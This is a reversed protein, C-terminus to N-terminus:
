MKLIKFNAEKEGFKLKFFYTGNSFGSIDVNSKFENPKSEFLLQGTITFIEIESIKTKSTILVWNTAPNPAYSFDILSDFADIGLVTSCSVTAEYGANVVGSDSYFKLTLSGDTATSEIPAPIANGTFGLATGTLNPFTDNPGNYINLYDYDIELDFATFTIKAKANPNTPIITRIILEDDRYNGTAGGSDTLPIGSCFDGSTVFILSSTAGILGGTCTNRFVAKYYTNPTLGNKVFSNTTPTEWTGSTSSLPFVSVESSITGGTETWNLTASTSNINSVSSSTIKNICTSVCDTSLCTGNNVANLIRTKPQLGFGNNFNIGIGSVLHCYSMITGKTTASPIIGPAVYCSYGEASAGIGVAACNDIATNNGNWICAHTHPSGLLHGFEHTIVEVTWSYTPVSSYSFNVDSYSYNTTKCLGNISVAVGGLGGPDVGVLQGVDGDFVPRVQHFKSLYASSTTGINNYPDPTTWIYISKLSTTIGDNNYLTQVNNYVSTMWNTTTTSNSGNSVYLNNDIEFYMTVCRTSQVNKQTTKQETEVDDKTQCGSNNLIKLDEDRYIIYDLVNNAKELKGIVLNSLEINSVIGNCENRFFNFSVISNLDDKVIGRYYVGKDYSINKSKDTDVHFNESFLDVKYLLVHIKNGQFPIELEINEYKNAVIKNVDHFNITAFTAKDLIKSTESNSVNTTEIFPILTVFKVKRSIIETIRKSVEQQSFGILSSFLFIFSIIKKM